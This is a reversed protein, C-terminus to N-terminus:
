MACQGFHSCREVFSFTTHCKYAIRPLKKRNHFLANGSPGSESIPSSMKILLSIIIATAITDTALRLPHPIIPLPLPFAGGGAACVATYLYSELDVPLM